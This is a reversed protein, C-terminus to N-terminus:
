RGLPLIRILEIVAIVLMPVWLPCKNMAAFITTIFVTIVLVLMVTIAVSM